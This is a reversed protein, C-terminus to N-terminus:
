ARGRYKRFVFFGFVLKWQNYRTTYNRRHVVEDYFVDDLGCELVKGAFFASRFRRFLIDVDESSGSVAEIHLDDTLLTLSRANDFGLHVYHTYIGRRDLEDFLEFFRHFIRSFSLCYFVAVNHFDAIIELFRVGDAIEKIGLCERITPFINALM